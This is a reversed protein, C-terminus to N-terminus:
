NFINDIILLVVIYALLAWTNVIKFKLAGNAGYRAVDALGYIFLGLTAVSSIIFMLSKATFHTRITLVQVILMLAIFVMSGAARRLQKKAAKNEANIEKQTKM